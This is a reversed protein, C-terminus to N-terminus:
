EPLRQSIALNKIAQYDEVSLSLEEDITWNDNDIKLYDTFRRGYADVCWDSGDTRGHVEGFATLRVQDPQYTIGRQELFDPTPQDTKTFPVYRPGLEKQYRRIRRVEQTGGNLLSEGATLREELDAQDSFRTQHLLVTTPQQSIEDVLRDWAQSLVELRPQHTHWVSHTFDSHVLLNIHNVPIPTEM